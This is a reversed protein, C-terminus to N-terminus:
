NICNNLYAITNHGQTYTQKNSISSFLPEFM